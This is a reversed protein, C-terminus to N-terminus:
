PAELVKAQRALEHILESAKNLARLVKAHTDKATPSYRIYKKGTLHETSAGNPIPFKAEFRQAAKHVTKIVDSYDVGITRTMESAKVAKKKKATAM